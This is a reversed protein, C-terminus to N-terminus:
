NPVRRLVAPGARRRLAVLDMGRLRRRDDGLGGVLRRGGAGRHRACPPPRLPRAGAHRRHRGSSGAVAVALRG